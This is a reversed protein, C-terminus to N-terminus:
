SCYRQALIMGKMSNRHWGSKLIIKAHHANVSVGRSTDADRMRAGAGALTWTSGMDGVRFAAPLEQDPTQGARGANAVNLSYVQLHANQREFLYFLREFLIKFKRQLCLSYREASNRIDDTSWLEITCWFGSWHSLIKLCSFLHQTSCLSFSTLPQAFSLETFDM